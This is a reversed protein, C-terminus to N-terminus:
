GPRGDPRPRVLIPGYHVVFLVFAAAWAVGSAALLARQGESSFFPAAVRAVAAAHVLVLGPVMGRPLVLPRGTHGLGVRTIVALITSGMAGATLAHLGATAPVGAGLDSAAVLLLGAAVWASGAHLSWLLPDSRVQWSQWGSLRVAAALGAVAALVGTLPSRGLVATAVALAGASGITLAGVSRWSRVSREVGRLRLANRTFAPTIRGAIVLILVIVLDVAFRLAPAAVGSALGLAEAHVFGNAVALALVIGAIGFNRLQGSGWLTRLVALAVGPLFALDVAAVLGAPLSGAAALGARGLVWVAFLAALPRGVLAPGGSWVPSATLLFGAIAAGVFGFVMEHGHWLMPTVWSPAPWAGLWALAWWPVAVAAFLSLGLFFPRFARGWLGSPEARSPAAADIELAPLARDATM